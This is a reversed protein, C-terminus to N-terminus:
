VQSEKVQTDSDSDTDIEEKGDLQKSEAEKKNRMAALQTMPHLPFFGALGLISCHGFIFYKLWFFSSVLHTTYRGLLMAVSKTPLAGLNIWRHLKEFNIAVLKENFENPMPDYTGIQELPKTDRARYAKSVIIHYFPRNTCGQRSFRIRLAHNAFKVARGM